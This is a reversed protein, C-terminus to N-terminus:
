HDVWTQHSTYMLISYLNPKVGFTVMANQQHSAQWRTKFHGPVLATHMSSTMHCLLIHCRSVRDQFDLFIQAFINPFEWRWTQDSNFQWLFAIHLYNNLDVLLIMPMCFAAVSRVESSQWMRWDSWDPGFCHHSGRRWRCTTAPVFCFAYLLYLDWFIASFTATSFPKTTNCPASTYWLEPLLQSKPVRLVLQNVNSMHGVKLRDGAHCFEVTTCITTNVRHGSHSLIPKSCSLTRGRRQKDNPLQLQETICRQCRVCDIIWGSQM